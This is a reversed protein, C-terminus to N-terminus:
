VRARWKCVDIGELTKIGAGLPMGDTALKAVIEICSSISYIWLFGLVIIQRLARKRKKRLTPCSSDDSVHFSSQRSM